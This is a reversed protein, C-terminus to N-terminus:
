PFEDIFIAITLGVLPDYQAVSVANADCEASVIHVAQDHAGITTEVEADTVPSM